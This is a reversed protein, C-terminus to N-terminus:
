KRFLRPALDRLDKRWVQWEHVGPAEFWVHEVGHATLEEDFQKGREYGRDGKGYGIWLLDLMKKTEEVSRGSAEALDLSRSGSMAAISAFKDLNAFGIRLAQGGGMSLGAIARSRRDTKTRFEGDIYPILDEIVVEGFAENGRREGTAGPKEAYGWDMVIIMPRAKGEALLNDFILNAKGQWTWSTENEGAGHQLYLVPYRADGRDYGPPTYVYARRSQGTVRSHYWCVRVQGHPVNKVSYFDLKEDPVELGSTYQGWGFYSASAPDTLHHGDIILEYYQFGPEVPDTTVTWVGDAGKTMEYPTNGNMGSDAARGAVAVRKAEPAEVRFTVRRDPHIWPYSEGRVNSPAPAGSEPATEQAPLAAVFLLNSFILLRRTM